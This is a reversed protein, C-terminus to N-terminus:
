LSAAYGPHYYGGSYGRHQAHQLLLGWCTEDLYLMISRKAFDDPDLVLERPNHELLSQLLLISENVAHLHKRRAPDHEYVGRLRTLLTLMSQLIPRNQENVQVSWRDPRKHRRPRPRALTRCSVATPVTARKAALKM